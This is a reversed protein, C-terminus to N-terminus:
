QRKEEKKKQAVFAAFNEVDQWMADMDEPSLDKDGGWFAAMLDEKTSKHEGKPAPKEEKQDTNGLLYDTSVHFVESLRLLTTNDPESKGCEWMAVASRGVGVLAGLKEQSMKPTNAQRLEKIRNM